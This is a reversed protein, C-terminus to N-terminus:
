EEQIGYKRRMANQVDKAIVKIEGVAQAHACIRAADETYTACIHAREINKGIALVGHNALLCSYRNHLVRLASHGLEATGPYGFEAVPIDGGIFPIMEVLIAPIAKNAVAFGTAYPSHTHVVANIDPRSQYITTHMRWESSPKNTGEIVKGEVNIILIDDVQMTTYSVGSPTIAILGSEPNYVSLNGSTGAFLKEEFSQKSIELVIQKMDQTEM